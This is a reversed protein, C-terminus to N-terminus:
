ERDGDKKIAKLRDLLRQAILKPRYEEMFKLLSVRMEMAQEFSTKSLDKIELRYDDIQDRVVAEYKLTWERQKAIDAQIAAVAVPLVGACGGTTMPLLLGVAIVYVPIHRTMKRINM